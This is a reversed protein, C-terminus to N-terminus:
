RLGSQTYPLLPQTGGNIQLRAFGVSKESPLVGNERIRKM